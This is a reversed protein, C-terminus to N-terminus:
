HDHRNVENKLLDISFYLSDMGSKVVEFNCDAGEVRAYEASAYKDIGKAAAYYDVNPM